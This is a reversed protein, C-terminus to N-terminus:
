CILNVKKNEEQKDVKVKFKFNFDVEKGTNLSRVRIKFTKGWIKETDETGFLDEEKTHQVSSFRNNTPMNFVDQRFSPVLHLFQKLNKFSQEALRKKRTINEPEIVRVNLRVADNFTVLEVEYIPSPNSVHSHIDECRFTYYYKKDSDINDIFSFNDARRNYDIRLQNGAFDMISKPYHDIRYTEFTTAPDDSKFRIMDASSLDRDLMFSLDLIDAYGIGQLSPLGQMLGASYFQLNDNDELIVPPALFDGLNASLNILVENKNGKFPVINVNPYVPPNDVVVVRKIAAPISMIKLCPMNAVGIIQHVEGFQNQTTSTGLPINYTGEQGEIRTHNYQTDAYAYKNGVVAIIRDIRYEYIEGYKVQTDVFKEVERENNAMLHFSSVYSATGAARNVLFKHISYGIVESPAIRGELIEEYSRARENIYKAVRAKITLLRFINAFKEIPALITRTEPGSTYFDYTEKFWSEFDLTVTENLPFNDSTDFSTQLSDEENNIGSQLIQDAYTVGKGEEVNGLVTLTRTPSQVIGTGEFILQQKLRTFLSKILKTDENYTLAGALASKQINDMEFEIFMPSMYRTDYLQDLQEPTFSSLFIDQEENDINFGYLNQMAIALSRYADHDRDIVGAITEAFEPDGTRRFTGLTPDFNNFNETGYFNDAFRLRTFQLEEFNEQRPTSIGETERSQILGIDPVGIYPSFLEIEKLAKAFIKEHLCDYYSYVPRIDFSSRNGVDLVSAEEKTLLNPVNTVFDEFTAPGVIPPLTTQRPDSYDTIQFNRQGYFPVLPFPNLSPRGMHLSNNKYMTRWGIGEAQNKATSRLFELNQGRSYGEAPYTSNARTLVENVNNPEIFGYFYDLWDWTNHAGRPTLMKGVLIHMDHRIEIGLSSEDMLDQKIQEYNIWNFTQYDLTEEPTFRHLDLSKYDDEYLKLVGLKSLSKNIFYIPSLKDAADFGEPGPELDRHALKMMLGGTDDESPGQLHAVNIWMRDSVWRIPDIAYSDNIVNSISKYDHMSISKIEHALYLPKSDFKDTYIANPGFDILSANNFVWTSRAAALSDTFEPVLTAPDLTESRGDRAEGQLSRAAFDAASARNAAIQDETLFENIYDAPNRIVMNANGRELVAINAARRSEETTLQANESSLIEAASTSRTASGIQGLLEDLGGTNQYEPDVESQNENEENESPFECPDKDHESM